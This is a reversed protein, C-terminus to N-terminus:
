SQVKLTIGVGFSMGKKILTPQKEVFASSGDKDKAVALLGSFVFYFGDATDGKKIVVRNRGLRCVFGFTLEVKGCISRQVEASVRIIFHLEACCPSLFASTTSYQVKFYVFIVLLM